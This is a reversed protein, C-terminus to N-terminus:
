PKLWIRYYRQADAGPQDIFSAVPNTATFSAGLNIWNTSTLDKNYQLQCTQGPMVSWTLAVGGNTPTISQFAPPIIIRYITGYGSGNGPSAPNFGNGGYTTTGYFSGDPAQVLAGAPSLGDAGDFYHLTTMVGNTTLQFVSGYYVGNVAWDQSTGYLNGDSGQILGATSGGNAHLITMVGNTTIRFINGSYPYTSSWTTAGYLYNDKGVLLPARPTGGTNDFEALVTLEGKTTIRFLTGDYNSGGTSSTGYFNGDPGETLEAEPMGGVASYEPNIVGPFGPEYLAPFEYLVNMTGDPTLQYLTGEQGTGYSTTTGYLNGDSGQTVGAAPLRGYFEGSPGDNTFSYLTTLVGNTTLKFITGNGGGYGDDYTTGYLNGDKGKFLNGQPAMGDLADYNNDQLSGFFYITSFSNNPTLKFVTGYDIVYGNGLINTLGGGATTGYLNGDNGVVLASTHSESGAMWGYNPPNAGTFFVVNTFIVGARLSTDALLALVCLLYNLKNKM